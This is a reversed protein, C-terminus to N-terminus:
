DRGLDRLALVLSVAEVVGEDKMFQAKEDATVPRHALSGDADTFYVSLSGCNICVSLAGDSPMEETNFGSAADFVYGCHYCTADLPTTSM